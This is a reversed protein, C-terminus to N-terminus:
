RYRRMEALARTLDMSKRRLAGSEKPASDYFTMENYTSSVTQTKAEYKEILLLLENSLRKVESISEKNMEQEEVLEDKTIL